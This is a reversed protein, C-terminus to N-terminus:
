KTPGENLRREHRRSSPYHVSGVFLFNLLSPHLPMYKGTQRTVVIDYMFNMGMVRRSKRLALYGIKEWDLVGDEDEDHDDGRGSAAVDSSRGGMYTVLKLLFDDTDFGGASHKMARAKLAAM